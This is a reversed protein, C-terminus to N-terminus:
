LFDIERQEVESPHTHGRLAPADGPTHGRTYGGAYGQAPKASTRRRLRQYEWWVILGLSAIISGYLAIVLTM